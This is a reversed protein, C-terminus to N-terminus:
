KNIKINRGRRGRYRQLMTESIERKNLVKEGPTKLTPRQLAFMRLEQICPVKKKEGDSDRM